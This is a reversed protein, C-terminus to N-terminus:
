WSVGLTAGVGRCLRLGLCLGHQGCGAQPGLKAVEGIVLFLSILRGRDPTPAAVPSPPRGAPLSGSRWPAEERAGLKVYFQRKQSTTKKTLSPSGM